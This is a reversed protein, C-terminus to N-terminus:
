EQATISGAEDWPDESRRNEFHRNKMKFLSSSGSLSKSSSSIWRVSWVFTVQGACLSSLLKLFKKGPKGCYKLASVDKKVHM